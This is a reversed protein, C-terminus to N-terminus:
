LTIGQSEERFEIEYVAEFINNPNHERFLESSSQLSSADGQGGRGAASYYQYSKNSAKDEQYTDIQTQMNLMESLLQSNRKNIELQKLYLEGYQEGTPGKM